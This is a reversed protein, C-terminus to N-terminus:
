EHVTDLSGMHPRVPVMSLVIPQCGMQQSSQMEGPTFTQYRMESVDGSHKRLWYFSVYSMMEPSSLHPHSLEEDESDVIHIYSSSAMCTVYYWIYTCHWPGWNEVLPVMGNPFTVFWSRLDNSM